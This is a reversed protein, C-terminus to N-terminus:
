QEMAAIRDVELCHALDRQHEEERWQLEEEEKRQAEEELRKQKTIKTGKCAQRELYRKNRSAFCLEAHRRALQAKYHEDNSDSFTAVSNSNFFM